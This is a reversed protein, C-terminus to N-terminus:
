KAAPEGTKEKSHVYCAVYHEGDIHSLSPWPQKQCIEMKQDCRPLFACTNPMGILNPPMGEIPVLKRGEEEDLRPICKLLGVTYPHMPKGFIEKTTGSEVIRGAYM